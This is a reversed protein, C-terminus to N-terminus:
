LNSQIPVFCKSSGARRITTGDTGASNGYFLPEIIRWRM